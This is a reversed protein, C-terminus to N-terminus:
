EHLGAIGSEERVSQEIIGSFKYVLSHGGFDVRIIEALLDDGNNPRQQMQHFALVFDTRYANLSRPTFSQPM